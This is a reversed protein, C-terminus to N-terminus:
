MASLAAALTGALCAALLAAPIDRVQEKAKEVALVLHNRDLPGGAVVLAAEQPADLTMVSGHPSLAQLNQAITAAVRRNQEAGLGRVPLVAGSTSSMM